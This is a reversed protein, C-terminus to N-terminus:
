FSLFFTFFFICFFFFTCLYPFLSFYSALFLTSLFKFFFFMFSFVAVVRSEDRESRLAERWRRRYGDCGGLCRWPWQEMCRQREICRFTSRLQSWLERRRGTMFRAMYVGVLINGDVVCRSLGWLQAAVVVTGPLPSLFLSPSFLSVFGFSRARQPSYHAVDSM